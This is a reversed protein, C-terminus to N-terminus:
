LLEAGALLSDEFEIREFAGEQPDQGVAALREELDRLTEGSAIIRSGDRSFAVWQGEFQRLEEVTFKARNEEYRTM